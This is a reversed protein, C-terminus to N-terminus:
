IVWLLRSCQSRPLTCLNNHAFNIKYSGGSYVLKHLPMFKNQQNHFTVDFSYLVNYHFGMYMGVCIMDWYLCATPNIGFFYSFSVIFDYVSWQCSYGIWQFLLIILQLILLLAFPSRSIEERFRKTTSFSGRIGHKEFELAYWRIDLL